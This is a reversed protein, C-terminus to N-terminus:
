KKGFAWKNFYEVLSEICGILCEACCAVISDDNERMSRVVERLAQILAVVLSGLCISGFSTTLSRM